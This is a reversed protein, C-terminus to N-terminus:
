DWILKCQPSRKVKQTDWVSKEHKIGRRHGKNTFCTSILDHLIVSNREKMKKKKSWVKILSMQWLQRPLHCAYIDKSKCCIFNYKTVSQWMDDKTQKFCNRWARICTQMPMGCITVEHNFVGYAFRETKLIETKLVLNQM